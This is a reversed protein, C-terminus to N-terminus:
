LGGGCAAHCEAWARSWTGSQHQIEHRMERTDNLSRRLSEAHEAAYRNQLTLTQMERNRRVLDMVFDYFATLFLLLLLFQDLLQLPEYWGLLAVNRFAARLGDAWAGDRLFSCLTVLALLFWKKHSLFTLKETL